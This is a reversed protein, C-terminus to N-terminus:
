EHPPRALLLHGMERNWNEPRRDRRLWDSANLYPSIFCPWITIKTPLVALGYFLLRGVGTCCGKELKEFYYCHQYLKNWCSYSCSAFCLTNLINYKLTLPIIKVVLCLHVWIILRKIYKHFIYYLPSTLHLLQFLFAFMLFYTYFIIFHKLTFTTFIGIPKKILHSSSDMTMSVKEMFHNHLYLWCSLLKAYLSSIPKAPSQQPLWKM